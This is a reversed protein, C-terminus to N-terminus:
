IMVEADEDITATVPSDALVRVMDVGTDPDRAIELVQVPRNLVGYSMGVDMRWVQGDCECNAGSLQLPSPPLPPISM